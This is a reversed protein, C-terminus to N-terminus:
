PWRCYWHRGRARTRAPPLSRESAPASGPRTHPLAIMFSATSALALVWRQEPTSAVSSM